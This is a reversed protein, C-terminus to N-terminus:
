GMILLAIYPVLNFVIFVIKFLGIFSYLVVTFQERTMNFWKSHIRYIWDQAFICILSSFILMGGTLITCWMFYQQLISLM